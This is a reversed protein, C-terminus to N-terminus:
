RAQDLLPPLRRAPEPVAEPKGLREPAAALEGAAAAGATHAEGRRRSVAHGHRARGSVCCTRNRTQGAPSRRGPAAHTGPDATAAETRRARHALFSDAGPAAFGRPSSKPRCAARSMARPHAADRSVLGSTTVSARRHCGGRRGDCCGRGRKRGSAHLARCPHDRGATAAPQGVRQVLLQPQYVLLVRCSVEDLDSPLPVAIHRRVLAALREAVPMSAPLSTNRLWLLGLELDCGALSALHSALTEGVEGSERFDAPWFSTSITASRDVGCTPSPM